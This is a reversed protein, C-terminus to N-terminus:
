AGQAPLRYYPEVKGTLKLTLPNGYRDKSTPV